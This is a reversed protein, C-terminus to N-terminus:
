AWVKGTAAIAAALRMTGDRVMADFANNEAWSGSYFTVTRRVYALSLGLEAAIGAHDMGAGDRDLIAQERPTCGHMEDRNRDSM